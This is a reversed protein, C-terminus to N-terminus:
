RRMMMNPILMVTGPVAAIFVILLSLILIFPWLEKLVSMVDLKEIACMSVLIGGVPPTLNGLMANLIIVVGFHVLDMGALQVLPLVMPVFLMINVTPDSICGLLFFLVNIMIIILVANNGSVSVMLDYLKQQAGINTLVFGIAKGAPVILLVSGMTIFVHELSYIFDKISMTRYLVAGLFLAYVVAVAAAETTTVIGTYILTLLIVPTMIPLLAHLTCFLLDRLFQRWGVWKQKPYHRKISMLYVYIMLVVGMLIGPIMGGFFLAGVSVNAVMSYIVMPISPPIIPGILSSAMTVSASFEKDYGEEVMSTYSIHGIGGVDALASGSMGAFIISTVINVHGLGGPVYGVVANCFDFIRKSVTTRNMIEATLLFLPVSVLAFSNLGAFMNMTLTTLPLENSVIHLFSSVIMAVAIPMGLLMLAFLVIFFIIFNM